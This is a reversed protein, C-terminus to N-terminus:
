RKGRFSMADISRMMEERAEEKEYWDLYEDYEKEEETRNLLRLREKERRREKTISEREPKEEKTQSINSYNFLCM